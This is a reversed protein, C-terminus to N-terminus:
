RRVGSLGVGGGGRGQYVILSQGIGSPPIPSQHRPIPVPLHFLCRSTSGISAAYSSM